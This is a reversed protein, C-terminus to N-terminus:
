GAATGRTFADPGGRVLPAPRHPGALSHAQRPFPGGGGSLHRRTDPTRPAFGGCPALSRGAFSGRARLPADPGGRPRTDPTRPAFGGPDSRLRRCIHGALERADDGVGDIFASKRRRQFHLGLAYLGGAPTVGGAHVIEGDADLVPVKLWPYSRRFGTTWMVTRIGEADLDITSAAVNVALPWSPEFAGPEELVGEMGTTRIFEDIRGRLRALKVDAAAATAVLSDDFSVCTGDVAVLRGVIRVGEAHLESLGLTRHDPRGVLQLSPQQKSVEVDFVHGTTEGFLGMRDMWWFIDRGRYRRPLRTHRGVALTVPRGSAQLEEALQVGSASAGVVLVGGPPLQDPNRYDSPAIQRIQRSLRAAFRPVYPLDSFGTAIVVNAAEWGGRTTVVTYGDEDGSIHVVGTDTEVPATFSRAYDDLFEIVEPMTMFGDPDPGQYQYGPLRSQWNPTLLRLSDWRESRWREAVRGRELVVHEIGRDLLCRSMALGAQGGGVILVDTRRM